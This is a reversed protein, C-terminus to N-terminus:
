AGFLNNTARSRSLLSLRRGPALKRQEVNQKITSRVGGLAAEQAARVEAAANREAEKQAEKEMRAMNTEQIRNKESDLNLVFGLPHSLQAIDMFSRGVNNWNGSIINTAGQGANQLNKEIQKLIDGSNPLKIKPVKFKPWKIGWAM